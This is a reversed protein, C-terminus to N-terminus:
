AREAYMEAFASGVAAAMTALQSVSIDRHDAAYCARGNVVVIAQPSEHAVRLDEAIRDSADRAEQVTVMYVPCKLEKYAVGEHVESLARTCAHCTSSHKYVIIPGESSRSLAREWDEITRIPEM